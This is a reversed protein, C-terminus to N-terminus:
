KMYADREKNENKITKVDLAIINIFLIAKVCSFHLAIVNANAIIRRDEICYFFFLPAQEMIIMTKKQLNFFRTKKTM